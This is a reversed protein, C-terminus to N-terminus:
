RTFMYEPRVMWMTKHDIYGISEGSEHKEYRINVRILSGDYWGYHHAHDTEREGMLTEWDWISPYHADKSRDGREAAIANAIGANLNNIVTQIYNYDSRIVQGTLGDFFLAHGHGTEVVDTISRNKIEDSAISDKIENAKKDGLVEVNKDELKNLKEYMMTGWSALMANRKIYSRSAAIHFACSTGAAVAAPIYYKAVLKVTDAKTAPQKEDVERVAKVTGTATLVLATAGAALGMAQLIEPEHKVSWKTLRKLIGTVSLKM